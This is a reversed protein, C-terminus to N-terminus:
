TTDHSWCTVEKMRSASLISFFYRSWAPVHQFLFTFLFCIDAILFLELMLVCRYCYNPASWVTVITQDFMLKYGEMALQHARAILDIGNNHAFKKTIDAGFLFGAGRPSLGWGTIDPASQSSSSFLFSYRRIVTQIRGCFIVCRGTMHFKKNGILLAFRPPLADTLINHCFLFHHGFFILSRLIFLNRTPPYSFGPFPASLNQLTGRRVASCRDPPLAFTHIPYGGGFVYVYFGFIFVCPAFFVFSFPGPIGIRGV